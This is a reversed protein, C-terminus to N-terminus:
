MPTSGYGLPVLWQFCCHYINTSIKGSLICLVVTYNPPIKLDLSDPNMATDIAQKLEMTYWDNDCHGFHLQKSCFYIFSLFIGSLKIYFYMSQCKWLGGSVARLTCYQRLTTEQREQTVQLSISFSELFRELGLPLIHPLQFLLKNCLSYTSPM